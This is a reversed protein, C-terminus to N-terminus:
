LKLAMNLIFNNEYLWKTVISAQISSYLANENFITVIIMIIWLVLLGNIGGIVAGGFGNFTKIVPIKKFLDLTVGIIRLIIIMSIFMLVMSIVSILMTTISTVVYNEFSTVGLKDYIVDNNNVLLKEIVSKPLPLSALESSQTSRTLAEGFNIKEDISDYISTYLSTKYLFSSIVPRLLNAIVMAVFFSIMNYVAKVMGTTKGWMVCIVIFVIVIVDIM